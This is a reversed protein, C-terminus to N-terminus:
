SKGLRKEMRYDNMQFGQGIDLDFAYLIKFGHKMYFRLAARNGRNVNLQIRQRGTRHAVEEVAKLLIPAVGRGRLHLQIYFKHLFLIGDPRPEVGAFGAWRSTCDLLKLFIHGEKRQRKLLGPSYMLNLMYIVQPMGIISPFYRTWIQRACEGLGFLDEETCETVRYPLGEHGLNAM